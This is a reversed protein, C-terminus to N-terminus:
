KRLLLFIIFFQTCILEVNFGFGKNSFISEYIRADLGKKSFPTEM